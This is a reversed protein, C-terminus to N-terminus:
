PLPRLANRISEQVETEIDEENIRPAEPIELSITARNQNQPKCNKYATLIMPPVIALAKLGFELTPEYGSLLGM